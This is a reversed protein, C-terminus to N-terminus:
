CSSPNTCANTCADIRANYRSFKGKCSTQPMAVDESWHIPDLINEAIGYWDDDKKDAMLQKEGTFVPWLSYSRDLSWTSLLRKASDGARWRRTLTSLGAYLNTFCFYFLVKLKLNQPNIQINHNIKNWILIM